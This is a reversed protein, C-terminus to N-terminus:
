FSAGLGLELWAFVPDHDSVTQPVGDADLYHYQARLVPVGLSLALAAQLPGVIPIRLPLRAVPAVFASWKSLGHASFDDGRAHIAGAMVGICADWRLHAAQLLVLCLAISGLLPTTSVSADLGNVRAHATGLALLLAELAFRQTVRADFRLFAHVRPTALLGVSGAAGADASFAVRPRPPPAPAPAPGTGAMLTLALAAASGLTTCDGSADQLRRTGLLRREADRLTLLLEYGQDLRSVRGFAREGQGQEPVLWTYGLRANVARAIESASLCREAGPEREWVFQASEARASTSWIVLGLAFWRWGCFFNTM